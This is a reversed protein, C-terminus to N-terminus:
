FACHKPLYLYPWPFVKRHGRERFTVQFTNYMEAAAFSQRALSVLAAPPVLHSTGQM